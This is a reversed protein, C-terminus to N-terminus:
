RRMAVNAETARDAVQHAFNSAQDCTARREAPLSLWESTNNARDNRTTM